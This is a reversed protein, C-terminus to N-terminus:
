KHIQENLKCENDKFYASLFLLIFLLQLPHRSSCQTEPSDQQFFIRRLLSHTKFVDIPIQM